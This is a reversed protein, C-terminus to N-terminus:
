ILTAKEFDIFGSLHVSMKHRRVARCPVGCNSRDSTLQGIDSTVSECPGIDSTVTERPACNRRRLGPGAEQAVGNSPVSLFVFSPSFLHPAGAFEDAATRHAPLNCSRKNQSSHVASRLEPAHQGEPVITCFTCNGDFEGSNTQENQVFTFVHQFILFM